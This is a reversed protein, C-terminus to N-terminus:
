LTEQCQTTLTLVHHSLRHTSIAAAEAARQQIRNYSPVAVSALIAIIAIVVILEILTFGKSNTM